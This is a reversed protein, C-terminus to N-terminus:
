YKYWRGKEDYVGGRPFQEGGPLGGVVERYFFAKFALVVNAALAFWFFAVLATIIIGAEGLMANVTEMSISQLEAHQMTALPLLRDYLIGTWLVMLPISVLLAVGAAAISFGVVAGPRNLVVEISRRISEFVGKEEFVAACDSFFTFFVIPVATGLTVLPLFAAPNGLFSLPIALLVITALVAFAVVLLPLLVRFFTRAGGAVFSGPTGGGEKVASYAGGVLFPVCLAQVLWLRTVLFPDLYYQLLLDAAALGGMVTGPIWLVPNRALASIAEALASLVM